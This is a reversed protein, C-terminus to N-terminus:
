AAHGIGGQKREHLARWCLWAGLALLLAYISAGLPGWIEPPGTRRQWLEWLRVFTPQLTRAVDELLTVVQWLDQLYRWFLALDHTLSRTAFGALRDVWQWLAVSFSVVFASVLAATLARRLRRHLPSEREVRWRRLQPELAAMWQDHLAPPLVPEPLRELARTLQRYAALDRRCAACAALHTEIERRAGPASEGALYEQLAVQRDRCSM